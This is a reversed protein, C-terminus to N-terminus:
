WTVGNIVAVMGTRRLAWNMNLILRLGLSDTQWLSRVPNATVPTGGPGVIPLPTTDEEHVTAQDSVSFQPTEGASVFDAADMAIVTGLPVTGSDIIPWGNLAGTSTDFPFVGSSPAPTLGASMVQQPNMIFCPNRVNGRTATLLAGTLQKIDGTLAAFGGGATATLPTVGNLLGAPRIASAANNDLLVADLAVATDDIIAQRLVGEIQPVSHESIEKSWTTIVAMKKPTIVAATFAGQRVPIPQGEGVFSGAITPTLARTPISIRGATGFNLSLGKASLRPYVSAPFLSEMFSSYETRVLEAAWGVVTTMAPSTAARVAWDVYVKTADDGYGPNVTAIKARAEEVTCRHTNAYGQVILSRVWYEVPPESKKPLAFPRAPQRPQEITQVERTVTEATVKAIHQESAKLMALTKEDRAIQANLEETKSMDEDSVNSDDIKGLHENLAERLAVINQEKDTIRKTLPTMNRSKGVQTSSAHGGRVVVSQKTVNGKGKGAFVLQMTDDSIKMAKAAILANSNAPVAVLSCEVLEQKTFRSGSWPEKPNIPTHDIPKFGVSVARLIGADVLARIEDIRASSGKPALELQGRVEKNEVRVKSWKGIPFDPRHGFLAIPNKQFSSFDWGAAEIIDGMRDVSEDSLVFDHGDLKGARTKHVVGKISRSDWALACDEEDNGEDNVCRDMFDAESEDDGPECDMADGGDSKGNQHPFAPAIL